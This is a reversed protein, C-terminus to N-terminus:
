PTKPKRGPKRDQILYKDIEAKTTVWDRGIKKGKIKGRKLLLRIHRTTFGTYVAADEIGILNEFPDFNM